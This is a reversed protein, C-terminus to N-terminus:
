ERAVALLTEVIRAGSKQALDLSVPGSPKQLVASAGLRRAELAKASGAEAVSSLVVIKARSKLRANRIFTLGDMVPMELDVLIIDPNADKLKDLAVQGNECAAAVLFRGDSVILNGIVMRMLAADDVVMVRKKPASGAAGSGPASSTPQM